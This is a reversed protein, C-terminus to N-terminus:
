MLAELLVISRSVSSPLTDGFAVLNVNPWSSLPRNLDGISLGKYLGLGTLLKLVGLVLTLRLAGDLFAVNFFNFVFLIFVWPSVLCVVKYGM